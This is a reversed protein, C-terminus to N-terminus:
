TRITLTQELGLIQIVRKAPASLGRLALTSGNEETYANAAILAGIGSSDIFGVAALDVVVDTAQALADRLLDRLEATAAVDVEGQLEVIMKNAEVSTKYSFAGLAGSRAPTEGDHKADHGSARTTIDGDRGQPTSRNM